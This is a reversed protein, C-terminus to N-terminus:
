GKLNVYLKLDGDSYCM